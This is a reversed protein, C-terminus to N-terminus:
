NFIWNLYPLLRIDTSYASRLFLAFYGIFVVAVGCICLKKFWGEKMSVLLSPILFIQSIVLYYAVRSVEPIFAGATYLVLGGINLMAYFRNKVNEKLAGKYCIVCLALTGLCKAINTM